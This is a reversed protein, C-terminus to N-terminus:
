DKVFGRGGHASQRAADPQQLACLLLREVASVSVLRPRNKGAAQFFLGSIKRHRPKRRAPSESASLMELLCKVGLIGVPLLIFIIDHGQLQFSRFLRTTLFFLLLRPPFDWRWSMKWGAACSLRSSNERWLIRTTSKRRFNKLGPNGCRRFIRGAPIQELDGAGRSKERRGAQALGHHLGPRSGHSRGAHVAEDTEAADAVRNEDLAMVAFIKIVNWRYTETPRPRKCCRSPM